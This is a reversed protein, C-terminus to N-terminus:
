GAHRSRSRGNTDAAGRTGTAANSKEAEAELAALAALVRPLVDSRVPLVGAEITALYTLSCGARSALQARTIRLRDRRKRM